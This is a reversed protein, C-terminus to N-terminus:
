IWLDNLKGVLSGAHEINMMLILGTVVVGLGLGLIAQYVYQKPDVHETHSITSLLGCGITVLSSGAIVTESTRNRKGSILGAM